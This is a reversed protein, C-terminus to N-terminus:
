PRVGFSLQDGIPEAPVFLMPRPAPGLKWVIAARGSPTPRREDSAHLLGRSPSRMHSVQASATQHPLHLAVELEAVTAGGHEEIYALIRGDVTTPDFARFAAGSTEEQYRPRRQM